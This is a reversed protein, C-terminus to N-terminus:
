KSEDDSYAALGAEIVALTLKEQGGLRPFAVLALALKFLELWPLLYIKGSPTLGGFQGFYDNGSAVLLGLGRAIVELEFACLCCGCM